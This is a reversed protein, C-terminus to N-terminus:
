SGPIKFWASFDKWFDPYSKNVCQPNDIVMGEIKSGAVAFSMAIRHDNFSQIQGGQYSKQPYITLHGDKFDCKGGIAAINQRIAEIRNSEKFQLHSVNMLKLPQPSFLGLIGLSPVLDPIDQCDISFGRRMGGSIEVRDPFLMVGAGAEEAISFIREDGQLSPLTVGPLVIKAGHILGLVVWYSAASLDKEVTFNWELDPRNAKVQIQNGVYAVELGLHKMLKCTMKIYPASPVNGPLNIHLDNEMWLASLMLATVFQSSPLEGLRISGGSVKGPFIRAPLSNGEAEFRIGLAEFASFLERFPRQHLRPTGYFRVAKDTYAPLPLLFRASSGSNGLYVKDERVNGIPSSITLNEEDRESEMGMNKLGQLTIQTDEAELLNLIRTKGRNLGALISIRHSISKSSPLSITQETIKQTDIKYM